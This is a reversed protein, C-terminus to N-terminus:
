KKRRDPRRQELKTGYKKNIRDYVAQDTVVAEDLYGAGIEKSVFKM